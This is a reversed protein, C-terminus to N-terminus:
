DALSCYRVVNFFIWNAVSFTRGNVRQLTRSSPISQDIYRYIPQDIYRVLSIDISLYISVISIDLTDVSRYRSLYIYWRSRCISIDFLDVNIYRRSLSISIDAPRYKSLISVDIYWMISIDIPDVSRYISMNSMVFDIYRYTLHDMNRRSRSLVYEHSWKQRKRELILVNWRQIVLKSESIKFYLKRLKSM